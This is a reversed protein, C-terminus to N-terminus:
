VRTRTPGATGDTVNATMSAGVMREHAGRHRDNEDSIEGTSLARVVVAICACLLGVIASGLVLYVVPVGWVLRRAEHPPSVVVIDARPVLSGPVKELDRVTDGFEDLFVTAIRQADSASSATVTVDFLATGPRAAGSIHNALEVASGGLGLDDVVKQAVGTSSALEAYNHARRQAYSDGGDVVKSVDGPTRVFVTATTSFEPPKLLLFCTIAALAIVIGWVLWRWRNGLLRVYDTVVDNM